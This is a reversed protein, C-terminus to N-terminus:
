ERGAARIPAVAERASAWPRVTAVREGVLVFVAGDRATLHPEVGCSRLRALAEPHPHGWRNGRGASVIAARPRVAALFASASSTRSGHHGVVLVAAHGVGGAVLGHEGAVEVDAPLLVAVERRVGSGRALALVLGGDNDSLGRRAAAERPPWLVELSWAGDPPGLRGGRALLGHRAGRAEAADRVAQVDDRAAPGHGPGALVVEPDFLRIVAPAGGVHDADGHSVIVADLRDVGLSWLTRAVVAEGVDRAAGPRGGADVLARWPPRSPGADIEVLASSGQGVDLIVVAAGAGPPSVRRAAPCAQARLSLLLVGAALARWRSGRLACAAVLAAWSLALVGVGPTPVRWELRATPADVLALARESAVVLLSPLVAAWPSALAVVATVLAAATAVGAVPVAVANVLPCALNVRHFAACSVPLLVIWAGTNAAVLDWAGAAWASRGPPLLRRLVPAVGILGAAAGFTLVFGLRLAEDPHWAAAVLGAAALANWSSVGRRLIRGAGLATVLLASRVVPVELGAVAAFAWASAVTAVATVGEGAGLGRLVLAVLGAVLALHLGSVTLVHAAGTARLDEVLSADLADGAGLVLARALGLSSPRGAFVEELSTAVRERLRRLPAPRGEVVLLRPSVLRVQAVQRLSWSDHAFGPARVPAPERVRVWARITGARRLAPACEAPALLRVRGSVRQRVGAIRAATVVVDCAAWAAGPAAVVEVIGRPRGEVEVPRVSWAALAGQEELRALSGPAPRRAAGAHLVGAVLSALAVVPVVVLGSPQRGRSAGSWAAAGVAVALTAAGLLWPGAGVVAELEVGFRCALAFAAAPLALPCAHALTELRSRM